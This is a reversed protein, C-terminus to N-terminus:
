NHAARRRGESNDESSNSTNHQMININNNNEITDKLGSGARQAHGHLFESGAGMPGGGGAVGGGGGGGAGCEEAAASDEKCLLEDRRLSFEDGPVLQKECAVCRFCEMHFIKNKARMVYDSKGFSQGCKECRSGFLRSPFFPTKNSKPNM